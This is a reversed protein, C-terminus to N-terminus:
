TAIFIIKHELTVVFSPSDEYTAAKPFNFGVVWSCVDWVPM